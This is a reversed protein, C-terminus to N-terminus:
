DEHNRGIGVLVKQPTLIHQKLREITKKDKKIKGDFIVIGHLNEKKLNELDLKEFINKDTKYAEILAFLFVSFPYIYEEKDEPLNFPFTNILQHMFTEFDEKLEKKAKYLDVLTYAKDKATAKEIEIIKLFEPNNKLFKKIEKAIEDRHDFLIDLAKSTKKMSRNIDSFIQQNRELGLDIFCVASITCFQLEMLRSEYKKVFSRLQSPLNQPSKSYEKYLRMLTYIAKIRHQGDNIIWIANDEVDLIGINSNESIPYFEFGGDISLTVAPLVFDENELIYKEIASVRRNDIERQFKTFPDSPRQSNFYAKFINPIDKFTINITFMPLNSQIGRIAEFRM